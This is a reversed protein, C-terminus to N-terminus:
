TMVSCKKRSKTLKQWNVSITFEICFCDEGKKMSSTCVYLFVSSYTFNEIKMEKLTVEAPNGSKARYRMGFYVLSWL